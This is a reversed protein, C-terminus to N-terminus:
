STAVSCTTESSHKVVTVIPKSIALELNIPYYYFVVICRLKKFEFTSIRCGRCNVGLSLALKRQPPLKTGALWEGSQIQGIMWDKIQATLSLHLSRDPQWNM